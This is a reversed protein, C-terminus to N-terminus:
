LGDPSEMGFKKRHIDKLMNKFAFGEIGDIVQRITNLEEQLNIDDKLKKEFENRSEPTLQGSLYEEIEQIHQLDKSM